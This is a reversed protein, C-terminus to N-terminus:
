RLIIISLYEKRMSKSSNEMNIEEIAHLLNEMKNYHYTSMKFNSDIILEYYPILLQFSTKFNDKAIQKFFPFYIKLRESDRIKILRDILNNLLPNQQLTIFLPVPLIEVFKYSLCINHNTACQSLGNDLFEVNKYPLRSCQLLKSM